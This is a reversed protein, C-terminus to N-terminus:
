AARAADIPLPSHKPKTAQKARIVDVKTWIRALETEGAAHMDLGQALCLAALTIAVGGVEQYPEGAPRGFVYDVLQHAESQSCGCSQVLELSEELFRHNREQKDSAIVPGFCAMLWPQVRGQLPGGVGPVFGVPPVDRLPAYLPREVPTLGGPSAPRGDRKADDGAGIANAAATPKEAGPQTTEEATAPGRTAGALGKPENIPPAERTCPAPTDGTGLEATVAAPTIARQRAVEIEEAKRQAEAFEAQKTALEAAQRRVEAADDDLKKQIAALRDAEVKQEAAVRDAEVKKRLLEAREAEATRARDHLAVLESLTAMKAAVAQGIYEEWASGIVIDEVLVIGNAIQAATKGAAQGVYARLASLNAEHASKRAIEKREAEAKEAAIQVERAKIQADVADETPQVIAILEAVKPAVAKKADNVGDKFSSEARQVAYRGNERLDNRAKKAADMGKATTLDFAVARYREALVKLPAELGAFHALAASKLTVVPLAPLAPAIPAPAEIPPFDIM